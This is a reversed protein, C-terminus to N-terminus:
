VRHMRAAFLARVYDFYQVNWNTNACRQLIHRTYAASEHTLIILDPNPVCRFTCFRFIYAITVSQANKSCITSQRQWFVACKSQHKCVKTFYTSHICCKWSHTHNSISKACMQIHLISLHVCHNCETCEQQLYHESTTLISCMEIPTQVGKNACRQLIHRTYAASEHTLIILDPNPVCRFTCFRFIYAITVSQANKSCITSQRQWFVACKSQHKCVKTFYTSHICCKWSHTHNSRSKACMQIHLISLHVCHNCETCEQQLYHESTTLISCMEIPTQVGKYFIDLTHLVKM